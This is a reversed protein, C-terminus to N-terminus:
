LTKQLKEAVLEGSVLLNIEFGGTLQDLVIEAENIENKEVASIVIAVIATGLLVIIAMNFTLIPKM